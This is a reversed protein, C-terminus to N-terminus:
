INIVSKGLNDLAIILLLYDKLNRSILFKQKVYEHGYEGLKEMVDPHKLLYRIQFAMGEISHVLIGTINHKIQLPIGGVASAIVPKKKWLGETVTLGFGEKLSKQLIITSARQLANIEIDSYSPLGLVHIDEEGKVKDRVDDLVKMGEPDDAAGGGAMILQCDVYKKALKYAEIVGVQDKLRDFRSIQTIIPKEKSINYKELVGDITEQSIEINKESLPDISPPIIFQPISLQRTFRPSSFISADYRRVYEELFGWVNMDPSSLDIHCRWVWRGKTKEKMEILAIPQPDHIVIIDEDFDMGKANMRNYELFADFMRQNIEVDRGHLANHFAKTISFFNEDGKIVDWRTAIGVENLLPVLRTLIEAVGGGVATSNVMKIRKHVVKQALIRIEEVIQPGVIAEYDDLKAIVM